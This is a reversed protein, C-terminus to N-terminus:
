AGGAGLNVWGQGMVYVWPHEAATDGSVYWHADASLNYFWGGVGFGTDSGYSYLWGNHYANYHFIWPYFEAYVWGFEGGTPLWYDGAEDEELDFFALALDIPADEESGNSGDGIPAVDAWETGVRIEDVLMESAPLTMELPEGESDENAQEWIRQPEVQISVGDVRLEQPDGEDVFESRIGENAEESELLPNVYFTVATGLTEMPGEDTEITDMFYEIKLVAFGPPEAAFDIEYGTWDNSYKGIDKGQLKWYNPEDFSRSPNGFRIDWSALNDNEGPTITTITAPLPYQNAPHIGTAFPYEAPFTDNPFSAPDLAEGVRQAIASIYIVTGPERAPPNELFRGIWTSQAGEEWGGIARAADGSTKLSAGSADTYGLGGEEMVFSYAPSNRRNVDSWDGAWGIGGTGVAEVDNVGIADSVPYDFPEYAILEASAPTALSFCAALSTVALFARCPSSSHQISHNM